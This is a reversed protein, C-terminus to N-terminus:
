QKTIIRLQGAQKWVSFTARSNNVKAHLGPKYESTGGDKTGGNKPPPIKEIPFVVGMGELRKKLDQLTKRFKDTGRTKNQEIEFQVTYALCDGTINRQMPNAGRDLLHNVMDYDLIDAAQLLANQLTVTQQINIDAGNDLLYDVMERDNRFVARLLAPTARNDNIDANYSLLTKVYSIKPRAAAESLPTIKHWYESQFSKVKTFMNVDGGKKLLINMAKENDAFISYLFLSMGKSSIKNIEDKPLMDLLDTKGDYISRAIELEKGEFYYEPRHRKGVKSQAMNNNKM